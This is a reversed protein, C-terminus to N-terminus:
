LRNGLPNASDGHPRAPCSRGQTSFPWCPPAVRTSSRGCGRGRGGARARCCGRRALVVIPYELGKAKHITLPHAGRRGEDDVQPSRQRVPATAQADEAWLWSVGGPGGSAWAFACPRSPGTERSQGDGQPAGSGTTAARPEGAHSVCCSAREVIEHAYESGGALEHLDRLLRAAGRRHALHFGGASDGAFLDLRGGAHVSCSSDDDSFGFLTSHLAAYVAPGDTPDDIARLCVLADAVERRGSTPRAAM